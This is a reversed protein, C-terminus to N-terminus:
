AAEQGSKALDYREEKTNHANVQSRGDSDHPGARYCPKRDVGKRRGNEQGTDSCGSVGHFEGVVFVNRM